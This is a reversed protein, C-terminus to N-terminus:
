KKTETVQFYVNNWYIIGGNQNTNIEFSYTYTGAVPDDDYFVQSVMNQYPDYTVSSLSTLYTSDRKISAIANNVASTGSFRAQAIITIPAGTTTVTLSEVTAKVNTGQVGTVNGFSGSTKSIKTVANNTIQDTYISSDGIFALANSSTIQDITSFDSGKGLLSVFRDIDPTYTHKGGIAVICDTELPTYEKRNNQNDVVFWKNYYDDYVSIFFNPSYSSQLDIDILPDASDFRASVEQESFVIFFTEQTISGGNPSSAVEFPSWIAVDTTISYENGNPHYFTSGQVRIEGSNASGTQLQNHTLIVDGFGGVHFSSSASRAEVIPDKDVEEIRIYDIETIGAQNQFNVIIIPKIYYGDPHIPSPNYYDPAYIFGSTDRGSIYGVVETWTDDIDQGKSACYFQNQYEDLGNTAVWATNAENRCAVGIFATGSGSTQRLRAKIRYKKKDDYYFNKRSILTKEDQGDGAGIRLIKGSYVEASDVLSIEGDDFSIWNDDISDYNFDDFMDADVSVSTTIATSKRGRVNYAVVEISVTDGVTINNIRYSTEKTTISNDNYKLTYYDFFVDDPATWSVDIYADASVKSKTNLVVTAVLNTPPKASGDWLEVDSAISFDQQDAVTWDYVSAGTEACVLNVTLESSYDLEYDLVEYIANNLGLKENTIRINDGARVKLGALNVPVTIVRQQRSKGLALKALRQARYNDTTFPLTMDLYIPEGDEAVYASSLQGPYDALVYNNESSLFTGKVANYQNRRSQKTQLTMEGVMMSEDIDLIPATYYGANIFLEGQSYVVNGFMATLMNEINSSVKDSSDVYGNLAYRNHQQDPQSSVEYTVQQECVNASAILGAQNITISTLGYKSDNIYDAICLAPNDSWQTLGTRPDHVKKGRVLATINPIGNTFLDTDYELRVYIYATDNLVCSSTWEGSESVLDSDATTQDGKYLNFRVKGAFKSELTGNNWALEDNIYIKEYADIEHGAIAQVMHLYKGDNGTTQIYVLTGATKTRGYILPRPQTPAQVTTSLGTTSGLNPKPTLARSVASLAFTIAFTKLIAGATIVSTAYATGTTILASLASVAM